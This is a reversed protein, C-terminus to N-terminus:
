LAVIAGDGAGPEGATGRARRRGAGRWVTGGGGGSAGAAAGDLERGPRALDSLARHDTANGVVHEVQGEAVAEGRLLTRVQLLVHVVGQGHHGLEGRPDVDIDVEAVRAGELEGVLDGEEVEDVDGEEV